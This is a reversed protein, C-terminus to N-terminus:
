FPVLVVNVLQRREDVFYEYELELNVTGSEVIVAHGTVVTIDRSSRDHRKALTLLQEQTSNTATNIASVIRQYMPPHIYSM